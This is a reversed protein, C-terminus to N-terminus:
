CTFAGAVARGQGCPLGFKGSGISRRSNTMFHMTHLQSKLCPSYGLVRAIADM